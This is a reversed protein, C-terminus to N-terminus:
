EYQQRLTELAPHDRTVPPLYDGVLERHWWEGTARREVPTTFRYRFYQARVARPPRDEFPNFRFLGTVSPEGALLKDALRIFWADQARPSFGAFWMLWGLRLHYPAVQPPRVRPDGPKGRVEYAQWQAEPNSPDDATGEIIVEHRERTINGFAGYTGVLHLPNFSFNMVQSRSVMNVIPLISLVAVLMGLAAVTYEFMPPPARTALEQVPIIRQVFVTTFTSFSLVVTIWNLWSFNGTVILIGHFLITVLGALYAIPQWLFYGFPVLLEAIHNFIVGLKHVPVPLHHAYWSLPNPMPQTEHHYLLCTLDRWCPDGRLKILGAGFMVRFLLWRFLWIVIVSPAMDRSGLFIALFGAELLISEWGFAYWVQGVNVFSLYLVYLLGWSLMSVTLGLRETLGVLALGSLVVGLWALL